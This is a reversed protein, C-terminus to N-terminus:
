RGARQRCGGRDWMCWCLVGPFGCNPVMRDGTKWLEDGYAHKTILGRGSWGAEEAEKSSVTMIGVAFPIPNGPVRVSRLQGALLPPGAHLAERNM